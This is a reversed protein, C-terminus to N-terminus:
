GLIPGSSRPELRAGAASMPTHAHDALLRRLQDAPLPRAFYYGQGFDCGLERLAEHQERDEIGEAVVALQLSHGIAVIARVLAWRSDTTAESDIFNKPIKLSDVSFRQLYSLSSYGTGFDDVAIRVGLQRVAELTELTASTDGMLLSETIELVLTSPRIRSERLAAAVEAVFGEHRVQAPSVNVNITVEALDSRRRLWTRAQHCAEHLVGAGIPVILGSEEALPIFDAPELVGRTPHHWRVLAEIGVLQGTTLTVIPQYLLRFEAQQVARNLEASLVHRAVVAAHMGPEFVAHSGKGSAKARYMAVDANRVLEPASGGASDIAVGVSVSVSVEGASLPFPRRMAEVLRQAVESAQEARTATNILVAFEDGGLRAAVDSTRLCAQLRRAIAVLLEDGIAHGLGDNVTKFDDVDVFLVAPVRGVPRLGLAGEVAELFFARNPLGTLPDTSAQIKLEDKLKNLQVVSRELHGNELAVAVQRMLTEFLRLDDANFTSVDGFRNAVIMLGLVGQDGTLIGAMSDKVASLGLAQATLSSDGGAQHLMTGGAEAARDAVATWAGGPVPGMVRRANGPGVMTTMVTGPDGTALAVAAIDSRFAVRSHELLEAVASDLEASSHLIRQSEYLFELRERRQREAIVAQYAAYITAIPVALLLSAIPDTWLLSVALLSLATNTLAIAAGIALQEVLRDLVLTRQSLSIAAAISAVSVLNAASTALGAAVWHLLQISQEAPAVAHFISVAVSSVLFLQALNFAIKTPPQRRTLILAAGAGLVQGLVVDTPSSFFLGLVLPIESLSYSQADRRLHFHVVKAESLFFGMALLWWPIRIPAALPHVSWAGALFLPVGGLALAASLLWVLQAGPRLHPRRRIVTAPVEQLTQQQTDVSALRRASRAARM